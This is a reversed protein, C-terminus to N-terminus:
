KLLKPYSTSPSPVLFWCNLWCKSIWCICQHNEPRSWAPLCTTASRVCSNRRTRARMNIAASSPSPNLLRPVTLIPLHTEKSRTSAHTRHHKSLYLPPTQPVWLCRSTLPSLAPANMPIPKTPIIHVIPTHITAHEVSVEEDCKVDCTDTIVSIPNASWGGEIAMPLLHSLNSNTNYPLTHVKADGEKEGRTEDWLKVSERLDMMSTHITVLFPGSKTQSWQDM